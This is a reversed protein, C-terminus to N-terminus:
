RSRRPGGKSAPNVKKPASLGDLQDALHPLKEARALAAPTRGAADIIRTDAGRELLIEIMKADHHSVAYHLPTWGDTYGETGRDVANVNAGNRILMRAIVMDASNMAEHLATMGREPDEVANVDAGYKEVLLQAAEKQCSNCATHLAKLLHPNAPDVLWPYKAALEDILDTEDQWAATNFEEIIDEKSPAPLAKKV